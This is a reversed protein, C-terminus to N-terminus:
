VSMQAEMPSSSLIGSRTFCSVGYLTVPSTSAAVSFLSQMKRCQRGEKWSKSVVM